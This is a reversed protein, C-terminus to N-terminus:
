RRTSSAVKQDKTSKRQYNGVLVLNGVLRYNGQDPKLSMERVRIMSDGSAIGVLFDVLEKGGSSFQVSLVQEQFFQNTRTTSVRARTDYQSIQLGAAAAQSQVVRQLELENTLMQSGETELERLRSQYTERKAIETQYRELTTRNRSIKTEVQSWEDFYPWVFWINLVVFIVMGVIVVLRREQPRLNLKDLYSTM